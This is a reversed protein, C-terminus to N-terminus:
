VPREVHTITTPPDMLRRLLLHDGIGAVLLSGAILLDRMVHQTRAPIGFDGINALILCAGAIWVYHQRRRGQVIGVYGLIAAVVILPLSVHWRYIDQLLLSAFILAAIGMMQPGGGAFPRVTVAGYRHRYYAGFGYSAAIAVALAGMFWHNAGDGETGPLWRLQGDRWLAVFLFLIGLPVLRLGQLRPYHEVLYKIRAPDTM